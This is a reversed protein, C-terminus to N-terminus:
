AYWISLRHNIDRRSPFPCFKHRPTYNSLQHIEPRNSNNNNHNTTTSTTPRRRPEGSSSVYIENLRQNITLLPAKLEDETDTDATKTLQHYQYKYQPHPLHPNHIHPDGTATSTTTSNKQNLKLHEAPGDCILKM